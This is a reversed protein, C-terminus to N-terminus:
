EFDVGRPPFKAWRERLWERGHDQEYLSLSSWAWDYPSEVVGHKVPNYHVYNFAQIMQNEARMFRDSYHYWVRRQGTCGDARNWEFSTGTHLRKMMVPLSAFDEICALFHYHNSLVVWAIAEAQISKLGELLRAEFDTRRDASLMVPAHDFCAATILYYGNVRVPHPPAHLPYGREKRIRDVEEREKPSLNRYEYAM